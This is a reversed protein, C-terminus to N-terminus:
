LQYRVHPVLLCFKKESETDNIVSDFCTFANSQVYKSGMLPKIDEIRDIKRHKLSFNEDFAAGYVTGGDQIIKKALEYFLGGSSSKDVVDPNCSYAAFIHQSYDKIERNETEKSKYPCGNLCKGCQICKNLDVKPHMFGHYDPKMEIADIPCVQQCYGCGSCHDWDISIVSKEFRRAEAGGREIKLLM